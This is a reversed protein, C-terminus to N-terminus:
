QADGLDVATMATTDLMSLSRDQHRSTKISLSFGEAGKASSYDVRGPHAHSLTLLIHDVGSKLTILKYRPRCPDGNVPWCHVKANYHM